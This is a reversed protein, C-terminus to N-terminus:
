EGASTTELARPASPRPTTRRGIAAAQRGETVTTVMRAAGAPPPGEVVLTTGDPLEVKPISINAKIETAVAAAATMAAVFDEVEAAVLHRPLMILGDPAISVEWTGHTVLCWGSEIRKVETM